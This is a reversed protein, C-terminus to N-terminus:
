SGHLAILKRMTAKDLDGTVALQAHHQFLAIVTRMGGDIEDDTGDEGVDYGLNRLRERAGSAGSDPTDMMPNIEGFALAITRGQVTLTANSEPDRFAHVLLGAGDTQGTIRDDGIALTYPEGAIPHGRGDLLKLRLERKALKLTFRHRTDTAAAVTKVPRDPIVVQDGPHLVSPNPRLERLEANDPHRYLEDRGFGHDRAITAFCEGPRTVHTLM